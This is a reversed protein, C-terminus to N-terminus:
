EGKIRALVDVFERQRLVDDNTVNARLAMLNFFGEELEHNAAKAAARRLRELAGDRDGIALLAMAWGGDGFQTGAIDRGQPAASEERGFDPQDSM